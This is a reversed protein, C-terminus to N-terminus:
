KPCFLIGNLQTLGQEKLRRSLHVLVTCRRLLKFFYFQEIQLLAVDEDPNGTIHM